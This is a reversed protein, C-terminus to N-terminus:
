ATVYRYTIVTVDVMWYPPRANEDQSERVARVDVFALAGGPSKRNARIIREIERRLKYRIEKGTIGSKDICWGVVHYYDAYRVKSGGINLKEMSGEALGITIQTDYDKFLKSNFWEQSVHVTAATVGDDKTLSINNKILNMLTTKPDEASMRGLVMLKHIPNAM